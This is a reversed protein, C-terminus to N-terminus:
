YPRKGKWDAQPLHIINSFDKELEIVKFASRVHPNLYMHITPGYLKSKAVRQLVQYNLIFRKKDNKIKSIKDLSQLLEMRGRLPLYHLNIGKFSGKDISFPIVLPFKDYVPLTKKHKPDYVFSHIAGITPKHVKSDKISSLQSKFWKIANKLKSM